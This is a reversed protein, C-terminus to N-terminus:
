DEDGSEDEFDEFQEEEEDPINEGTFLTYDGFVIDGRSIEEVITDEKIELIYGSNKFNSGEVGNELVNQPHFKEVFELPIISLMGADVGCAFLDEGTKRNSLQYTGDGYATSFVFMTYGEFVTEGTGGYESIELFPSWQYDPVVYCPDGIWYKGPKLIMELVKGIGRVTYFM